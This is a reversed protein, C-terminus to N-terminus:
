KYSAEGEQEGWKARSGVEARNEQMELTKGLVPMLQRPHLAPAHGM